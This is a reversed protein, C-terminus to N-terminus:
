NDDTPECEITGRVLTSAQRFLALEPLNARPDSFQGCEISRPTEVEPSVFGSQSTWLDFRLQKDTSLHLPGIQIKPREAITHDQDLSLAGCIKTLGPKMEGVALVYLTQNHFLALRSSDIKFLA